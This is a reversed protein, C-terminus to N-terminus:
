IDVHPGPIGIGKVGRSHLHCKQGSAAGLEESLSWSPEGRPIVVEGWRSAGWGRGWCPGAGRFGRGAPAGGGGPQQAPPRTSSALQSDEFPTECVWRDSNLDGGEGPVLWRVSGLVRESLEAKHHADRSLAPGQFCVRHNRPLKRGASPVRHGQRHPGAAALRGRPARPAGAM